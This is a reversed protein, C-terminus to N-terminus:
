AAGRAFSAVAESYRRVADADGAEAAVRKAEEYRERPYESLRALTGVARARVAPFSLARAEAAQITEIGAETEGLELLLEGLEVEAVALAAESGGASDPALLECARRYASAALVDGEGRRLRGIAIQADAECRRDGLAAALELAQGLFRHADRKKDRSSAVKGLVLLMRARERNRLDALEISERLVGEAGILDGHAALAEGLKRSFTVVARQLGDDGSVLLDRRALELGRRLSRVAARSDGLGLAIDGVRELLLLAGFGDAAKFAHEARVELPAGRSAAIQLARAHLSKRAESPISTEILECVFPHGIEAHDNVLYVLGLRELQSLAEVQEGGVLEALWEVPVRNGFVAIAQLLRRANLDLRSVRETVADALRAPVNEDHHISGLARVQELFLPLYTRSELVASVAAPPRSHHGDDSVPLLVLKDSGTDPHISLQSAALFESARSFDLGALELTETASYAEVARSDQNAATTLLVLRNGAAAPLLKGIAEQSLGDCRHLDDVVVVAVGTRARGAAVRVAAAMAAAVAGTRSHGPMGQLGVPEVVEELGAQALPDDILREAVIEALRCEQVDLLAAILARVTYYPVLAGAPHPGVLVVQDGLASARLAFESILRSKGVGSEGEIRLWVADHHARERMSHIRQLEADRGILAQQPAPVLTGRPPITSASGDGSAPLSTTLRSGCQGCFRVSGPNMEGCVLCRLRNLGRHEFVDQAKRLADEMEDASQYRDVADKRLAKLVVEALADPVRRHPAIERPDPIPDNIHRLVVANPTDDVFPLRDTLLEFLMVGVSYIDSRGDLEDGRGQEPSMYDPTGCVLGPTTISSKGPGVITALGFDVVKVSEAGRRSKQCIINEPKLDRHVVGLAHAEGLAALVHRIIHVVRKFPLPGEEVLLTALDKGGLYEMVLYLVGDDSRGFDIIGVSDPHNLRSAARAENYFRAVTQEDSLLHPHIVKVAVTRGLMKQIGRYVRGMGGVGVLEQLLYAGGVTRGLLPDVPRSPDRADVSFGCSACFRDGDGVGAGCQPCRRM